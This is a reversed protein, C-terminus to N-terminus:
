EIVKLIYKKDLWYCMKKVHRGCADTTLSKSNKSKPRVHCILNDSIKIFKDYIGNKVKTRTDKWLIKGQKLDKAPMTWFMIKKLRVLKDDGTKEKEFIVFLFRQTFLSYLASDEWKKENIIEKYNINPFSMHQELNGNPELRITKIAIEAKEFEAIKKKKVGLITRCVNYAMSKSQGFEVGRKKEIEEITKGYYPSFKREILQEFTESGRYDSISRVVSQVDKQAELIKGKQKESIFLNHCMEPHKLSDLIITNVYRSKFSYARQQARRKTRPQFRMEKQAKSGKPCAALYLTDGQSIEHAKGECIKNHIITWDDKIIKLDEEPIKWCRVIKFLFDFPSVGKEYLYFMLLLFKNKTWFSSTVFNKKDEEIYNIVNLVLRDKSAVSKDSLLKLSTTKLELGAKEFDPKSENNSELIFHIKEVTKGLEGKGSLKFNSNPYLEKLSHGLLKRAYELISEWSSNDYPQTKRNM